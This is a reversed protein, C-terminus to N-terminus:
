YGRKADKGNISSDMQNAFVAQLSEFLPRIQKVVQQRGVRQAIRKGVKVDVKETFAQNLLAVLTGSSYPLCLIGVQLSNLTHSLYYQREVILAYEPDIDALWHKLVFLTRKDQRQKVWFFQHTIKETSKEPFHRLCLYFQPFYRQLISMSETAIILEEAPSVKLSKSRQYPALANLGGGLYAAYRNKLVRRMIQSVAAAKSKYEADGTDARDVAKQFLTIEGHSLNYVSGPKIKMLRNVERNDSEDFIVNQFASNTDISNLETDLEEVSVISPNDVTTSQQQLAQVTESLPASIFVLMAVDIITDIQQGDRGVTIIDGALLKQDDVGLNTKQLFAEATIPSKATAFGSLLLIFLSQLVLYRM